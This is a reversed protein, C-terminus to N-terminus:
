PLVGVAQNYRAIDWQVQIKRTTYAREAEYTQAQIRILSVLDTEGLQFAKQALESSKKAIDFQKTVIDLEARSVNLNHEAEHMMTELANRLTERETLAQGVGLEAAAKIPAARSEGGFPIRIKVGVSENSLNDFPGKTSRLNVLFQLNERSEVQALSRETEALGVKSQAETWISSQSYDELASQVEEFNAPIERLGTLLYYRHRAHMLEAESRLQEKEARLTEQQALMADTKAMEGATYRKEVDQQLKSALEYKNMALAHSNENIAVDWLTDRVLGAVQLKLSERGASVNSQTAEAVKLRNNRQNPLWVPLELEAQWEHEGRGSGLVDNQHLVNVAPSSPLMTNAAFNRANVIFERSQLTTQMPNRVFTKELVDHLQLSSNVKLEDLHSNDSQSFEVAGCLFPFLSLFIVVINSKIHM